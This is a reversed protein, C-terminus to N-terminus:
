DPNAPERQTASGPEQHALMPERDVIEQGSVAEVWYPGDPQQRTWLELLYRGREPNEIRNAVTM